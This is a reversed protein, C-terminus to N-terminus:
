GKRFLNHIYVRDAVKTLGDSWSNPLLAVLPSVYGAGAAAIKM